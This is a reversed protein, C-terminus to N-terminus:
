GDLPRTLRALLPPAGIALLGAGLVPSSLVVVVGLGTAGISAIRGPGAGHEIWDRVASSPTPRRVIVIRVAVLLALAALGAALFAGIGDAAFCTVAASAACTAAPVLDHSSRADGDVRAAVM